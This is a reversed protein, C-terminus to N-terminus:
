NVFMYRTSTALAKRYIGPSVGEPCKGDVLIGAPDRTPPLVRWVVSNRFCRFLLAPPHHSHLLASTDLLKQLRLKEHDPINKRKKCNHSPYYLSSNHTLLIPPPPSSSALLFSLFYSNNQQSSLHCSALLSPSGEHIQDRCIRRRRPVRCKRGQSHIRGWISGLRSRRALGSRLWGSRVQKNGDLSRSGRLRRESRELLLPLHPMMIGFGKFSWRGNGMMNKFERKKKKPLNKKGGRFTKCLQMTPLIPKSYKAQITDM